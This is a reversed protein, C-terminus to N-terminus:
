LNISIYLPKIAMVYSLSFSIKFLRGGFLTRNKFHVLIFLFMYIYIYIYNGAKELVGKM